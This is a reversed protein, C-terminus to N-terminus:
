EDTETCNKKWIASLGMHNGISIMEELLPKRRNFSPLPDAFFDLFSTVYFGNVLLHIFSIYLLNFAERFLVPVLSSSKVVQIGFTIDLHRDAGLAALM